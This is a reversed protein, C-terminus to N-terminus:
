KGIAKFGPYNKKRESIVSGNGVLRDLVAMITRRLHEVRRLTYHSLSDRKLDKIIWLNGYIGREKSLLPMELKMIYENCIDEYRKFTNSTWIYSITNTKSVNEGSMRIRMEVMDFDLKKFAHSVKGWLEELNKSQSIEMQINLFSRRERSFGAEDSIDRFWGYVKDAALYELYGLRRIGIIIVFAVLMLVIGAKYDKVNVILLAVGGLFLTFTYLVFVAGKHTFGMMLLRHHLHNKDPLFLRQGQIFRRIPSFIVEILPLGLAIIPITIAVTAQSKISGNISLTALMYGLFYSGCDGMFISAPNFNYRLFGLTGGALAALGMAIYFKQNALCFILLILSVFFSIGAALGDLGDVLNIANIVALYWIITAPYSILGLNISSNSWLLSITEIKSGGSFAITAAIIQITLKKWPGLGKIDDSLGMFFVIFAGAILTVMQLDLVVKDTILTPYFEAIFFPLFFSVFIGIGGTRPIQCEHVKRDSPCDFLGLKKSTRGVLPTLMLSFLLSLLFITLITTM